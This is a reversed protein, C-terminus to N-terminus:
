DLKIYGPYLEIVELSNEWSTWYAIDKLPEIDSCSSDLTEQVFCTTNPISDFEFKWCAVSSFNYGSLLINSNDFWLAHALWKAV